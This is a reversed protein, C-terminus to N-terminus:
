TDQSSIHATLSAAMGAAVLKLGNRRSLHGDASSYRM